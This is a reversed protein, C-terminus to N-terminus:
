FLTDAEAQRERPAGARDGAQSGARDGPDDDLMAAVDPFDAQGGQARQAAGVALADARENHVDGAHGRVWEFDTAGTRSEVLELIGRILDLNEPRKGDGKRWGRRRWGPAWITIVKIAYQSDARILVDAEPGLHRLAQRIALLEGINNTGRALSGSGCEEGDQDVWGWGTPGPNGLASGDTAVIRVPTGAASASM